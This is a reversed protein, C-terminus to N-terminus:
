LLIKKKSKIQRKESIEIKPSYLCVQLRSDIESAFGRIPPAGKSDGTLGGEQFSDKM